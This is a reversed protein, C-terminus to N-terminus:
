RRAAPASTSTAPCAPGTTRTKPAHGGTTVTIGVVLLALFVGTTKTM